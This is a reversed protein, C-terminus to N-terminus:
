VHTVIQFVLLESVQHELPNQQLVRPSNVSDQSFWCLSVDAGCLWSPVSVATISHKMHLMAEHQWCKLLLELIGIQSHHGQLYGLVASRSTVTTAAPKLFMGSVGTECCIVKLVSSSHFVSRQLLGQPDRPSNAFFNCFSFFPGGAVGSPITM